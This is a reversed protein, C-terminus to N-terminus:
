SVVPRFWKGWILAPFLYWVKRENPHCWQSYIPFPISISWEPYNWSTKSQLLLMIRTDAKLASIVDRSLWGFFPEPKPIWYQLSFDWPTVQCHTRQFHLFSLATFYICVLVTFGLFFKGEFFVELMRSKTSYIRCTCVCAFDPNFFCFRGSASARGYKVAM